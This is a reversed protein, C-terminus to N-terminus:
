GHHVEQQARSDLTAIPPTNSVREAHGDRIADRLARVALALEGIEELALECADATDAESSSDISVRNAAYKSLALALARGM